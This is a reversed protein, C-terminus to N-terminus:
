YMTCKNIKGATENWSPFISRRANGFGNHGSSVGEIM